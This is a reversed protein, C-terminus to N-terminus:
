TDSESDSNLNLSEGREPSIRVSLLMIDEERHEDCDRGSETDSRTENPQAMALQEKIMDLDLLTDLLLAVVGRNEETELARLEAELKPYKSKCVRALEEPQNGIGHLVGFASFPKTGLNPIGTLRWL